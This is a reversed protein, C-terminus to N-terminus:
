GCKNIVAHKTIARIAALLTPIQGSKTSLVYFTMADYDM